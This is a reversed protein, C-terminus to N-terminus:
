AHKELPPPLQLGANTWTASCTSTGPRRAVAALMSEPLGSAVDFSEGKKAAQRLESLFSDALAKSRRTRSKERGARADGQWILDFVQAVRQFGELDDGAILGLCGLKGVPFQGPQFELRDDRGPRGFSCGFQDGGGPCGAPCYRDHGVVGTVGYQEVQVHVFKM